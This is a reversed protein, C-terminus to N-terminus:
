SCRRRNTSHRIFATTSCSGLLQWLNAFHPLRLHRILCGRWWGPSGSSSSVLLTRERCFPPHTRARLAALVKNSGAGVHLRPISPFRPLARPNIYGYCTQNSSLEVPGGQNMHADCKHRCQLVSGHSTRCMM